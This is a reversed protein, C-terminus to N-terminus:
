KIFNNTSDPKSDYRKFYFIQNMDKETTGQSDRRIMKKLVFTTDNLIEGSRLIVPYGCQSPLWHVIKIINNEINFIGWFYKTTSRLDSKSVDIIYQEFYKDTTNGPLMIIGNRYFIILTSYELNTSKDYYFGDIKLQNGTFEARKLTLDKDKCAVMKICSSCSTLVALFLIIITKMEKLLKIIRIFHASM